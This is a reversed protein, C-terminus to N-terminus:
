DAKETFYHMSSKKLERTSYLIRYNDYGTQEAIQRVVDECNETSSGHIMTYLNYPWSAYLPREYCHSVEKHAAMLQGISVVDESPVRWVVMANASFGIHRHNVTAGLRRIVGKQKLEGVKELLLAESIGLSTAMVEYPNPVLPLDEQLRRIIEIEIAEFM